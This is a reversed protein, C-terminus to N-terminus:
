FAKQISCNSTQLKIICMFQLNIKVINTLCIQKCYCMATLKYIQFVIKFCFKQVLYSARIATIKCKKIKSQVHIKANTLLFFVRLTVPTFAQLTTYTLGKTLAIKISENTNGREHFLIM